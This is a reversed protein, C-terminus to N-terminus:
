VMPLVCSKTMSGVGNQIPGALAICLQTPAHKAIELSLIDEIHPHDANRYKTVAGVDIQGERAPAIRTNTGGIDAVLAELNIPQFVFQVRNEGDPFTVESITPRLAHASAAVTFLALLVLALAQSRLILMPVM